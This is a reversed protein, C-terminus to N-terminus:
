IEIWYRQIIENEVLEESVLKGGNKQIVKASAVNEKNCTILVKGLGLQKAKGLAMKLMETGYGKRRESPRIGFGMHGGKRKLKETLTHRINIVGLIEKDNNVLWYTSHEVFGAPLDIGKSYGRLKEILAPFNRSDYELVFPILKEGTSQFDKICDNYENELTEAPEILSLKGKNM